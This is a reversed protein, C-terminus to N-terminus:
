QMQQYRKLAEALRALAAHNYPSCEIMLHSVGQRAFERWILAMEEASGSVYQQMFPPPPVLDPYAVPLHVTVALTTVDRGVARCAQEMAHQRLRLTAVDAVYGTNWADAYQATLQLMRPGIGGVLLPPGAPRPGRPRLECDCAYYHRGAFDVQGTRLLPRIIQLAEAFREVRREFSVGFAAFEPAHWGAGLGLTFRGDSVEDLTTAMKALLAPNRFPVCMVLTGLAIGSTAEALASLITWGEWMGATLEPSFRYLLHDAVWISDFGASQVELAVERVERYRPAHGLEPNELLLLVVGIQMHM